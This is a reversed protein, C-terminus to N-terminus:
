CLNLPHGSLEVTLQISSTNKLIEMVFDQLELLVKIQGSHVCESFGLPM